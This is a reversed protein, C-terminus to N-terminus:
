CDQNKEFKTKEVEEKDPLSDQAGSRTVTLAAVKMAYNIADKIRADGALQSLFGGIFSDGAATTDLADVKYACTRYTNRDDDIYFVGKEGLTVILKKVGKSFLYDAGRLFEERINANRGTIIEFEIENPIIVDTLSLLEDSIKKAPAPNLITTIGKKKAIKFAELITEIPIEFQSVIYEVDDFFEEKLLEKKLEMNAGGIVVISNDGDENLMILATGTSASDHEMLLSTDVGSDKLRTRLTEAFEDRGLMGLMSVNGGLKGIAVAQNAGKGGPSKVFGEGNVTQGVMPTKDVNTVLDLNLSGIVLIKKM